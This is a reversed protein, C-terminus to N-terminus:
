EEATALQWRTSRKRVFRTALEYLIRVGVNVLVILASMAAAVAAVDGADDMSIISVSALKWDPSYLFIM